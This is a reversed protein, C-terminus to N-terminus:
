YCVVTSGLSHQWACLKMLPEKDCLSVTNLLSKTLPHLVLLQSPPLGNKYINGLGHSWVHSIRTYPPVGGEEIDRLIICLDITRDDLEKTARATNWRDCLDQYGIEFEECSTCGWAHKSVYTSLDMDRARCEKAQCLKHIDRNGYDEM